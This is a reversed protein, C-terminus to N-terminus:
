GVTARYFVSPDECAAALETVWEVSLRIPLRAIKSDKWGM